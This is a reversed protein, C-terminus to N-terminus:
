RTASRERLVWWCFRAGNVIYRRWMRRPDSVLKWTWELGVTSMWRPPEIVDGALMDLAAGVGVKVPTPLQALHRAIWKEQKPTGLCVFLADAGAARVADIMRATEAADFDRVFPPSYTGAIRLGPNMECLRRAAKEATEGSRGGILFLRHGREAARVAFAELILRGGVNEKFPRGLIRSAYVVGMGDAVVLDARGLLDRFETDTRIQVLHDANPTCIMRPRGAAIWQEMLDITEARTVNDFVVGFLEVPEIRHTVAM